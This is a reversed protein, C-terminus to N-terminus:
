NLWFLMNSELPALGLPPRSETEEEEEAEEEEEDEGGGM